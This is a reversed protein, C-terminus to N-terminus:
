SKYKSKYMLKHFIEINQLLRLAAAQSPPAHIYTSTQEPVKPDTTNPPIFATFTTGNFESANLASIGVALNKSSITLSEGDFEIKQVLEDVAKLASALLFFIHLSQM